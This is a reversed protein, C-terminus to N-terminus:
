QLCVLVIDDEDVAAVHGAPGIDAADQPDLWVVDEGVIVFCSNSVDVLICEAPVEWILEALVPMAVIVAIARTVSKDLVSM